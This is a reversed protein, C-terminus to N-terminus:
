SAYIEGDSDSERSHDPCPRLFSRFNFVGKGTPIVLETRWGDRLLQEVTPYFYCNFMDARVTHMIYGGSETKEVVPPKSQNMCIPVVISARPYNSIKPSPVFGQEIYIDADEIYMSYETEEPVHRMVPIYFDGWSHHDNLLNETYQRIMEKKRDLNEPGSKSM